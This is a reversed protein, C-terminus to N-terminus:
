LLKVGYVPSGHLGKIGSTHTYRTYYVEYYYMFMFATYTLTPFQQHCFGLNVYERTKFLRPTPIFTYPIVYSKKPM